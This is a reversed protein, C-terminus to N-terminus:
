LLDFNERPFNYYPQGGEGANFIRSYGPGGPKDLRWFMNWNFRWSFRMTYDIVQGSGDSASRHNLTLGAYMLSEAGFTLGLSTSTVDANNVAGLYSMALIPVSAVNYRTYVYDFGVNQRGPAEAARLVPGSGSDWRFRSHDLTLFETSAEITESTISADENVIPDGRSPTNYVITVIAHTWALFKPNVPILPVSKGFPMISSDNARAFANDPYAVGPFPTLFDAVLDNRDDWACKLTRTATYRGTLTNWAVVPSEGIEEYDVAM